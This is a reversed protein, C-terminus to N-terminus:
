MKRRARLLASCIACIKNGSSKRLLTQVIQLDSLTSLLKITRKVVNYNPKNNISM